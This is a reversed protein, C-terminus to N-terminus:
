KHLQQTVAARPIITVKIVTSLEDNDNELEEDALRHAAIRQVHAPTLAHAASTVTTTDSTAVKKSATSTHTAGNAGAGFSTDSAFLMLLALSFLTRKM